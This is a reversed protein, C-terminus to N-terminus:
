ALVKAIKRAKEQVPYLLAYRKEKLMLYGELTLDTGGALLLIEDAKKFAQEDSRISSTNLKLIRHLENRTIKGDEDADFVKFVFKFLEETNPRTLMSISEVFENLNLSESKDKDLIKFMRRSLRDDELRKDTPLKSNVLNLFDDYSLAGYHSKTISVFHNVLREVSAPPLYSTRVLYNIIENFEQVRIALEIELKPDPLKALEEASGLPSQAKSQRSSGEEASEVSSLRSPMRIRKARTLHVISSEAAVDNVKIRPISLDPISAVSDPRKLSFSDKRPNDSSPTLTKYRIESFSQSAQEIRTSNRKSPNSDSHKSLVQSSMISSEKNSVLSHHKDHINSFAFPKSKAMRSFENINVKGNKSSDLMLIMEDLLDEPVAEGISEFVVKLEEADLQRDGDLDFVNFAHKIQEETFAPSLEENVLQADRFATRYASVPIYANHNDDAGSLTRSSSYASKDSETRHYGIHEHINGQHSMRFANTRYPHKKSSINATSSYQSPTSSSELRLKQVSLRDHFSGDYSAEEIFPLNQMSGIPSVNPRPFFVLSSGTVRDLIGEEKKIM